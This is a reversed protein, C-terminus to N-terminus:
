SIEDKRLGVENAWKTLLARSVGSGGCVIVLISGYKKLEEHHKYILSLVAGCAPEVLIRHDDAFKLCAEVAAQDTVVQPFIPHIKTWDLAQQAIRKAGLSTAISRISELTVLSGAKFSQYLSDAGITEVTFVDASNWGVDYVGKMVGCLLGGGGVAVLIAEPRIGARAVEHILSANGEWILPHDFPAIYSFEGRTMMEKAFQDAEDWSTGQVIVKAGEAQIKDRMFSSTSEPVIVTTPISLKRGSYAAALGANGGSTSLFHSAGQKAYCDCLHGIGRNKFSGSPQLAEMKLYIKGPLYHELAFSELLQTIVYLKEMKGRPDREEQHSPSQTTLHIQVLEDTAWAVNGRKMM